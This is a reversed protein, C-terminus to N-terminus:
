VAGLREGFSDFDEAQVHGGSKRPKPKSDFENLRKLRADLEAQNKTVLLGQIQESQDLLDILEADQEADRASLNVLHKCADKIEGLKGTLEEPALKSFDDKIATAM